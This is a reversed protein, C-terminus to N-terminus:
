FLYRAAFGNLTDAALDGKAGVVVGGIFGDDDERDVAAVDNEFGHLAAEEDVLALRLLYNHPILWNGAFSPVPENWM